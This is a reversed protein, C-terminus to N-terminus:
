ITYGDGRGVVCSEYEGIFAYVLAMTVLLVLLATNEHERAFFQVFSSVLDHTTWM